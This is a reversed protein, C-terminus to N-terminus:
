ASLQRKNDIYWSEMLTLFVGFSFSFFTALIVIIKKKPRTRSLPTEPEDLIHLIDSDEVEKIQAM